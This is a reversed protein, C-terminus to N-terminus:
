DESDAIGTEDLEAMLLADEATAGAYLCRAFAGHAEVSQIVAAGIMDDAIERTPESNKVLHTVRFYIEGEEDLHFAGLSLKPNIRAVLDRIVPELPELAIYPFCVRVTVSRPKPEHSIKLVCWTERLLFPIAACGAEPDFECDLGQELFHERFPLLEKPFSDTM